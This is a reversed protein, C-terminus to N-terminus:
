RLPSKPGAVFVSQAWDRVWQRGGYAEVLIECQTDPDVRRSGAFDAVEAVAPPRIDFVPRCGSLPDDVPAYGMRQFLRSGQKCAQILLFTPSSENV